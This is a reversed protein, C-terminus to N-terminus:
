KQELMKKLNDLGSQYVSAITDTATKDNANDAPKPGTDKRKFTGSWTVVTKNAGESKARIVSHYDSVPLVGDVITYKYDHYKASYSLLKEDVFGGGKLSLHRVAGAVNNKGSKLEDKEVAPHWRNLADFDGAAAWVKAVPADITVSKSVKLLPAAALASGSVALLAACALVHISKM